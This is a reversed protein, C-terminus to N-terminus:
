FQFYLFPNYSNGALAMQREAATIRGAAQADKEMLRADDDSFRRKYAM